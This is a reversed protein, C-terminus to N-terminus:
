MKLTNYAKHNESCLQRSLLGEIIVVLIFTFKEVLVVEM